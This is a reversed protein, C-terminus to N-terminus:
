GPDELDAEIRLLIRLKTLGLLIQLRTLLIVEWGAVSKLREHRLEIRRRFSSEEDALEVAPGEVGEKNGVSLPFFGSLITESSSRSSSVRVGTSRSCCCGEV